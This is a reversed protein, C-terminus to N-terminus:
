CPVSLVPPPLPFVFRALLHRCASCRAAGWQGRAAVLSMAQRWSALLFSLLLSASQPPHVTLGLYTHPTPSRLLPPPLLLVLSAAATQTSSSSLQGRRRSYEGVWWATDVVGWCRVACCPLRLAVAGTQRVADCSFVLSSREVAM